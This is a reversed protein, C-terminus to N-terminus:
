AWELGCVSVLDAVCASDLPVSFFGDKNRWHGRCGASHEHLGAGCASHAVKYCLRWTITGADCPIPRVDLLLAGGSHIGAYAPQRGEDLELQATKGRLIGAGLCLRNGVACLCDLNPAALDLGAAGRQHM